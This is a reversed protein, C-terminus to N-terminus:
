GHCTCSGIVVSQHLKDCRNLPFAKQIHARCLSYLFSEYAFLNKFYRSIKCSEGAANMNMAEHRRPACRQVPPDIAVSTAVHGLLSAMPGIDRDKESLECFLLTVPLSCTLGLLKLLQMSPTQQTLIQQVQHPYHECMWTQAPLFRCCLATLFATSDRRFHCAHKAM